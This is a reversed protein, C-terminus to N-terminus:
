IDAMEAQAAEIRQVTERMEEGKPSEQWQESRESYYTEMERRLTELLIAAEERIASWRAPSPMTPIPACRPLGKADREVLRASAQRSRYARQKAARSDHRRPTPM